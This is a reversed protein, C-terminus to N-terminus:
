ERHEPNQFSWRTGAQWEEPSNGYLPFGNRERLMAAMHMLNYAMFTTNRNTFDNEAAGSEEDLYSPGPGADGVWGSDAQPPIAYGMHQLSYIIEGACHKVGDENGTIICGGTKGYYIYQGASNTDSSNSYLREILKKTESSIQGLWIPSGIVLIDAAIIKSFLEPWEDQEWGHETMDPYIGAAVQHDVFRIFEVSVGERRMVGAALDMLGRTHSKEPSRKLTCNVFIAKLGAFRPKNM